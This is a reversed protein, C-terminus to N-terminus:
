LDLFCEGLVWIERALNAVAVDFAYLALIDRGHDLMKGAETGRLLSDIGTWNM